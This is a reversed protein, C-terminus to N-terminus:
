KAGAPLSRTREIRCRRGSSRNNCPAANLARRNEIGIGVQPFPQRVFRASVPKMGRQLRRKM